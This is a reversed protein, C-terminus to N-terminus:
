MPRKIASVIRSGGGGGNMVKICVCVCLIVRVIYFLSM